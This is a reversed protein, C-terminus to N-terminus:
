ISKLAAPGFSVDRRAGPLFTILSIFLRVEKWLLHGVMVAATQIVVVACTSWWDKVARHM